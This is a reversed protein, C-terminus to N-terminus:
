SGWWVSLSLLMIYFLWVTNCCIMLPARTPALRGWEIV